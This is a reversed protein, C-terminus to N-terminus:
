LCKLLGERLSTKPHWGPLRPGDWPEMVERERYARTFEVSLPKIASIEAVLDRLSIPEDANVAYTGSGQRVATILADVADDIYVLSVLQEGKTMVANKNRLLYPILKERPDRPGYIDFLKLTIASVGRANVYYTLIDEFAQKTAAYLNVPDYQHNKYHQWSTGVSIFQTPSTAELLQTGFLINSDILAPIKEPTHSSLFLSALHFVVDPKKEIVIPGRCVEEVDWGDARLRACLHKGIFGSAGTVLARM